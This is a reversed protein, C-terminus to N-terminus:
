IYPYLLKLSRKDLADCDPIEYRNDDRDRILIRNGYIKKIDYHRNKIDFSVRGKDTQVDLRLIGFKDELGNIATIKPMFYYEGLAEEVAKKSEPMLTDLNRIIAVEKGDGDLLSIYMNEGTMPFLRKPTLEKVTEGGYVDMDVTCLGTLTFKVSDGEVYNRAMAKVESM